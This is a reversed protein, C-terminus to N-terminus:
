GLNQAENPLHGAREPPLAHALCASQQSGACGRTLKFRPMHQQQPAPMADLCLSLTRCAANRAHAQRVTRRLCSRCLTSRRDARVLARLSCNASLAHCLHVFRPHRAPQEAAAVPLSRVCRQYQLVQRAARSVSRASLCRRCATSACKMDRLHPRLRWGHMYEDPGVPGASRQTVYAVHSAHAAFTDGPGM